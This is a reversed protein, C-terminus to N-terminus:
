SLETPGLRSCAGAVAPPAVTAPAHEMEVMSSTAGSPLSLPEFNVPRENPRAPDPACNVLAV